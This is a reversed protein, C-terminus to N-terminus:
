VLSIFIVIIYKYILYLLLLILLLYYYFSFSLIRVEDDIWDKIENSQISLRFLKEYLSHKGGCLEEMLPILDLRIKNRTYEKHQNSIDEYWKYENKELYKILDTKSINLLPKFFKGELIKM